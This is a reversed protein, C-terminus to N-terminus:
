LILCGKVIQDLLPVADNGQQKSYVIFRDLDSRKRQMGEGLAASKVGLLVKCVTLLQQM